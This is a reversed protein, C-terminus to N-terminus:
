QFNINRFAVDYVFQSDFMDQIRKLIAEEMGKKDVEAEEKTYSGIVDIIESKILSEKTTMMASNDKYDKDKTNMSLSVEVMAYHDAGDAGDAGKKLAITMPDAIDYMETDAMSVEVPEEAGAEAETPGVELNLVTAINNVLAVTKRNASVTSFMIIGTLVLNVILLALILITLLNKKM